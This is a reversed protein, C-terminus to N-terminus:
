RDHKDIKKFEVIGLLYLIFVILISVLVSRFVFRIMVKILNHIYLSDYDILYDIDSYDKSLFPMSIASSVLALIWIFIFSTNKM